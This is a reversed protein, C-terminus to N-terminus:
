RKCDIDNYDGRHGAQPAFRIIGKVNSGSQTQTYTAFPPLGEIKLEIPNGDKDTASVPIEILQM